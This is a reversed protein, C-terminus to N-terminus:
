AAGLSGLRGLPMGGAITFRMPTGPDTALATRPPRLWEIALGWGVRPLFGGGLPSAALLGVGRGGWDARSERRRGAAVVISTGGLWWLGAPNVSVARSDQDGALPTAPMEVGRTPEEDYRRDVPQARAGTAATALALVVAAVTRSSSMIVLIYQSDHRR